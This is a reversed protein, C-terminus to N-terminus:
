DCIFGALEAIKGVESIIKHFCLKCVFVKEDDFGTNFWFTFLSIKKSKQGDKIIIKAVARTFKQWDKDDPFFGSDEDCFSCETRTQVTQHEVRFFKGNFDKEANKILNSCEQLLDRAEMQLHLRHDECVMIMGHESLIKIRDDESNGFGEVILSVPKECMGGNLKAQCEARFLSLSSM